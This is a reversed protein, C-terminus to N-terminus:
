KNATKLEKKMKKYNDMSVLKDFQANKEEAYFGILIDISKGNQKVNLTKEDLENCSFTDWSEGYGQNGTSRNVISRLHYLKTEKIGVIDGVKLDSRNIKILKYGAPISSYTRQAIAYNHDILPRFRLM